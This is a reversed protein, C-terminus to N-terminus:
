VMMETKRSIWRISWELILTKHDLTARTPTMLTFSTTSAIHVGRHHTPVLHEPEQRFRRLALVRYAQTHIETPLLVTTGVM